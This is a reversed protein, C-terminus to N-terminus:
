QNLFEFTRQTSEVLARQYKIYMKYKKIIFLMYLFNPKREIFFIM